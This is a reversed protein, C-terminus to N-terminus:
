NQTRSCKKFKQIHNKLLLHHHTRIGAHMDAEFLTGFQYNCGQTNEVIANLTVAVIPPPSYQQEPAASTLSGDRLLVLRSWDQM